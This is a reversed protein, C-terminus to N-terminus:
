GLENAYGAQAGKIDNEDGKSVKFNSVLRRKADICLELTTQSLSGLDEAIANLERLREDCARQEEILKDRDTVREGAAM